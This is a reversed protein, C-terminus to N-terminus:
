VAIEVVVTRQFVELDPDYRDEPGTGGTLRGGQRVSELVADALDRARGFRAASVTVRLPRKAPPGDRFAPSPSLKGGAAAYVCFETGRQETEPVVVPFCHGRLAEVEEVAAAEIRRFLYEEPKENPYRM